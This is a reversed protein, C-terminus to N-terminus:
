SPLSSVHTADANQTEGRWPMVIRERGQPSPQLRPTIFYDVELDSVELRWDPGRPQPEALDSTVVKGGAREACPVLFEASELAEGGQPARKAPDLQLRLHEEPIGRGGDAGVGDIGEE